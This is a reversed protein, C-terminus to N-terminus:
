KLLLGKKVGVFEGAEMQYLYVGSSVKRGFNDTGDWEVFHSGRMFKKNVLTKIEQGLMNYIKISVQELKPVKFEIKTSPNFPNPYNQYLQYQKPVNNQVHSTVGTVQNYQQGAWVAATQIADLGRGWVLALALTVSDGPEIHFPGIAQLIKYDFEEDSAPQIMRSAMAEYIGEPTYLIQDDWGWFRHTCPQHNLSAIGTYLTIPNDGLNEYMYSIFNTSDYAAMDNNLWVYDPSSAVEFDLFIGWYFDNITGNRGTNLIIYELVTYDLNEWSFINQNIRLGAGANYTNEDSFQCSYKMGNEISDSIFSMTPVWPSGYEEGYIGLVSQQTYGGGWVEGVYLQQIGSGKPYEWTFLNEDAIQGNNLYSFRSSTLSDIIVGNEVPPVYNPHIMFSATSSHGSTGYSNVSQVRWYIISYPPFADIITYSTDPLNAIITTEVPEFNKSTSYELTYSEALDVHRWVLLPSNDAFFGMNKPFTTATKLPLNPDTNAPILRYIDGCANNRDDYALAIYFSGNLYEFSRTFTPTVLHFKKEWNNLDTTFFFETLYDNGFKTSTMVFLTDNKAFLDRPTKLNFLDITSSNQISSARFIDLPVDKATKIALYILEDNFNVSRYVYLNDELGPFLNDSEEVFDTGTFRNIRGSSRSCYLNNNLTFFEFGNMAYHEWNMGNDLSVYIGRNGCSFLKNDHDFVDTVHIEGPITRFKEWGSGSNAYFNGFDWSETADFGPIYITGDFQRFRLVQEDDISFDNIFKNQATDYYWLDIPGANLAVDGVGFYIKGNWEEIDWVNRAYVWETDDPYRDKFPNGLNIISSDPQQGYITKTGCFLLIFLNICILYSMTKQSM